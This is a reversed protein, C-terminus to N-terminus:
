QRKTKYKDTESKGKYEDSNKNVSACKREFLKQM